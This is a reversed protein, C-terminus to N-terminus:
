QVSPPQTSAAESAPITISPLLQCSQIIDICDDLHFLDNTLLRMSHSVDQLLSHSKVLQTTTSTLSRAAGLYAQGAIEVMHEHFQWNNDRLKRHLLTDYKPKNFRTDAMRPSMLMPVDSLDSSSGHELKKSQEVKLPPLESSAAESISTDVEEEESESAEGAVVVAQGGAVEQEEEEDSEPAEGRVVTQVKTAAGRDM